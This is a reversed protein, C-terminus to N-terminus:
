GVQQPPETAGGVGAKEVAPAQPHSSAPFRCTIYRVVGPFFGAKVTGVLFRLVYFLMPWTVSAM